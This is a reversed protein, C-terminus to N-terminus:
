NTFDIAGDKLTVIGVGLQKYINLNQEQLFNSTKLDQYTKQAESKLNQELNHLAKLLLTVCSLFLIIYMSIFLIKSKNQNIYDWTCTIYAQGTLLIIM